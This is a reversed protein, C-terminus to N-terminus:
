ARASPQRGAGGAGGSPTPSAPATPDNRAGINITKGELGGLVRDIRDALAKGQLADPPATRSFLGDDDLDTLQDATSAPSILM